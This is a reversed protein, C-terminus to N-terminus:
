QFILFKHSQDYDQEGTKKSFTFVTNHIVIAHLIRPKISNTICEHINM